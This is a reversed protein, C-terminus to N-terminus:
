KLRTIADNYRKAFDISLDESSKGIYKLFTSEKTHGTINMILPTPFKGYHNTAFSRRGIHSSVLMHKPYKGFIKRIKGKGDSVRIGGYEDDTLGAVKCLEKVYDNYKQESITRPFDGNYKDLIEIVPDLLPIPVRKNMGKEQTVDMLMIGNSERINKKTFKLFDSIRQGTYCSIILWDRTNQLKESLKNEPITTIKNLEEENLYIVPSEQKPLKIGSFRSSLKLGNDRAHNCVTIIVSFYKKITNIAYGEKNCYNVYLNCFDPNVDEINLHIQEEKIIRNLLNLSTNYRVISKKDLQNKKISIFYEFYKDLREPLETTEGSYYKKVISTLWLKDVSNMSIRLYADMVTKKLEFMEKEISSISKYLSADRVKKNGKIIDWNSKSVVIPTKVDITLDKKAQDRYLIRLTLPALEKTSRYLYNVTAMITRYKYPLTVNVNVDNGNIESIKNVKYQCDAM